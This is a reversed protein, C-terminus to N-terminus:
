IPDHENTPGSLQKPPGEIEKREQWRPLSDKWKTAKDLMDFVRDITDQLPKIEDNVQRAARATDVAFSYFAETRTRNRDIESAFANLKAFLAERKNEPLNLLNLKERISDILKHIASRAPADLSVIGTTGTKLKRAEEVLLKQKLRNIHNKFSHYYESFESDATPVDHFKTLFGLAYVEDFATLINTYEREYRFDSTSQWLPSLDEYKRKELQLFAEEPDDPLNLFENYGDTM